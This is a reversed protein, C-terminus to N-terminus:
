VARQNKLVDYRAARVKRACTEVVFPAHSECRLTHHAAIFVRRACARIGGIAAQRGGVVLSNVRVAGKGRRGRGAVREEHFEQTFVLQAFASYSGEGVYRWLMTTDADGLGAFGPGRFAALLQAFSERSLKPDGKRSNTTSIGM